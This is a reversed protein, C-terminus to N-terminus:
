LASLVMYSYIRCEVHERVKTLLKMARERWRRRIDVSRDAPTLISEEGSENDTLDSGYSSIYENETSIEELRRLVDNDSIVGVVGDLDDNSQKETRHSM